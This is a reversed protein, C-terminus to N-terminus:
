ERAKSKLDGLGVKVKYGELYRDIKTNSILEKNGNHKQKKLGEAFGHLVNYTIERAKEGALEEIADGAKDGAKKLLPSPILLCILGGIVSWLWPSKLVEGLLEKM